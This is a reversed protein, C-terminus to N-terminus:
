ELWDEPEGDGETFGEESDSEEDKEQRELSHKKPSASSTSLASTNGKDVETVDDSHDNSKQAKPVIIMEVETVDTGASRHQRAKHKKSTHCTATNMKRVSTIRRLVQNLQNGEWFHEPSFECTIYIYPSNIPVYGGKVQGQYPYRDLLRLLDRFPWAGDYDDIVIAQQQTYNDWWKTGDKIYYSAHSSTATYTKGVGTKGWLWIVNPATQRDKLQQQILKSIGSHMKTYMVPFEAAIDKESAGARIKDVVEHIDNRRGQKSITGKEIYKGDKKCYDAAQCATGKRTEWHARASVRKLTDLRKANAFEVYGQLHPTGNEGIEEGVVLYKVGEMSM